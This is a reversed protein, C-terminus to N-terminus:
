CHHSDTTVQPRFVLVHVSINHRKRTKTFRKESYIVTKLVASM